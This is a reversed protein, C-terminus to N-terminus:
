VGQLCPNLTTRKKIAGCHGESHYANPLHKLSRIGPILLGALLNVEAPRSLSDPVVACRSYRLTVEDRYSNLKIAHSCTLM